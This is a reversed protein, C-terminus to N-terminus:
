VLLVVFKHTETWLLGFSIRAQISRDHILMNFEFMKLSVGIVFKIVNYPAIFSCNLKLIVSTKAVPFISLLRSWFRARLMGNFDMDPSSDALFTSSSHAIIAAGKYQLIRSRVSRGNM